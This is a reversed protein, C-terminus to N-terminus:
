NPRFKFEISPIKAPCLIVRPIEKWSHRKDDFIEKTLSGGNEKLLRFDPPCELVDNPCELKHLHKLYSESDNTVIRRNLYDRGEFKRLYGLAHSRKCFEGEEWFVYHIRYTDNEDLYSVERCDVPYGYVRGKFDQKCYDCRGGNKKQSNNNDGVNSVNNSTNGYNSSVNRMSPVVDSDSHCLDDKMYSTYNQQNSFAVIIVSNNSDRFSMTDDHYSTGYTPAIMSRDNSVKINKKISASSFFGSNLKM